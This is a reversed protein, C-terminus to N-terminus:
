AKTLVYTGALAGAAVIITAVVLGLDVQPKPQVADIFDAEIYTDETINFTVPNATSLIYALLLKATLM